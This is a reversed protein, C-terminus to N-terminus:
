LKGQNNDLISDKKILVQTIKRKLSMLLIKPFMIEPMKLVSEWDIMYVAREAQQM